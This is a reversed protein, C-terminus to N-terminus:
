LWGRYRCALVFGIGVLLGLVVPITRWVHFRKVDAAVRKEFALVVCSAVYAWRDEDSTGDSYDYAERAVKGLTDTIDTKM